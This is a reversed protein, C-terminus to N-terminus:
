IQSMASTKSMPRRSFPTSAPSIHLEGRAFTPISKDVISDSGAPGYGVGMETGQALRGRATKRGSRHVEWGQMDRIEFNPHHFRQRPQRDTLGARRHRRQPIDRHM